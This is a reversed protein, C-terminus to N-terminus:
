GIFKIDDTIKQYYKIREKCYKSLKTSNMINYDIILCKNKNTDKRMVRGIAQTVGGEGLAFTCLVLVDASKINTGESIKGSTGILAQIEGKDM